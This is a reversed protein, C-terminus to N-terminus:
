AGDRNCGGGFFKPLKALKGVARDILVQDFSRFEPTRRSIGIVEWDGLSALYNVMTRGTVGLAGAVLAKKM